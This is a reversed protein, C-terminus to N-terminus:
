QITSLDWDSDEFGNKFVSELNKRIVTLCYRLQYSSAFEKLKEVEIQLDALLSLVMLYNIKENKEEYSHIYHM